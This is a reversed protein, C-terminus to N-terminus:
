IPLEVFFTTGKGVESQFDLKGGQQEVAGKAVYLGFGNGEISGVNSARFLKGFLKAQEGKPIGIGTDRVICRLTRGRIEVCLEVTGGAPTYKVANSLLNEITMRTLRKDFTGEPLTSPFTCILHVGKEKAKPEIVPLIEAFFRALDWTQKDMALRGLEIRSVDLLLSTLESLSAITTIEHQLQEKAEDTLEGFDGALFDEMSWRLAAIPSNLQHSVIGILEDKQRDLEQLFRVRTSWIKILLGTLVLIVVVLFAVFQLFPALTQGTITFFDNARIDAALVAIVQGNDDFIPEYGTLVQGWADEYLDASTLPGDFARYAEQPPDPYEQGPWQLKDPGDPEVIGDGNADVDNTPDDDTNAYPNLSEADAVFELKTPNNASKRFIYLFVIDDNRDKARKLRSVLQSWEPKRWDKEAHLATVHAPNINAAQTTVIALLRHRLNDTLLGVTHEYLFWTVSATVVVAAISIAIGLILPNLHPRSTSKM